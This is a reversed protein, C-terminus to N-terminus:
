EPLHNMCRYYDDMVYFHMEYANPKRYHRTLGHLYGTGDVGLPGLWHDRFPGNHYWLRIDLYENETVLGKEALRYVEEDELIMHALFHRYLDDPLNLAMQYTLPNPHNLWWITIDDFSKLQPPPDHAKFQKWFARVEERDPPAPIEIQRVDNEQFAFAFKCGNQDELLLASCSIPSVLCQELMFREKLFLYVRGQETTYPKFM